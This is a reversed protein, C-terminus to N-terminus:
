GRTATLSLSEFLLTLLQINLLPEQITTTVTTPPSSAANLTRIGARERGPSQTVEPLSGRERLGLEEAIFQSTASM